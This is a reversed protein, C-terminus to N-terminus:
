GAAHATASAARAADPALSTVSAVTTTCPTPAPGITSLLVPKAAAHTALSM